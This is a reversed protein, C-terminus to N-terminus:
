FASDYTFSLIERLKGWLTIASCLTPPLIGGWSDTTELCLFAELKFVYPNIILDSSNLWSVLKWMHIMTKQRVLLKFMLDM